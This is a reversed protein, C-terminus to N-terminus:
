GCTINKIQDPKNPQQNPTCMILKSREKENLKILMKKKHWAMAFVMCAAIESVHPPPFLELYGAPCFM